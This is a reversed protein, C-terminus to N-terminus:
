GSGQSTLNQDTAAANARELTDMLLEFRQETLRVQNGNLKGLWVEDEPDMDYEVHREDQNLGAIPGGRHNELYLVYIPRVATNDLAYFFNSPLRISNGRHYLWSNLLDEDHM